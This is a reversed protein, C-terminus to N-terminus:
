QSLSPTGAFRLILLILTLAVLLTVTRSILKNVKESREVDRKALLRETENRQHRNWEQALDDQERTPLKFDEYTV